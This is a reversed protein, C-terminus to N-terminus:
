ARRQLFAVRDAVLKNAQPRAKARMLDQALKDDGIVDKVWRAFDNKQDNAHYSFAADSMNALGRELEKLNKFVQGDNSWFLKDAAVDSLLKKADPKPVRVM